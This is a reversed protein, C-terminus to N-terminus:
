VLSTVPNHKPTNKNNLMIIFNEKELYEILNQIDAEKTELSKLKQKVEFLSREQYSCYKMMKSLVEQYSLPQKKRYM